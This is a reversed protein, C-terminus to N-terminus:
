RRRYLLKNYLQSVMMKSRNSLILMGYPIIIGVFAYLPWFGELETPIPWERLLSSSLNYLSVLLATLMKFALFHFTMIQLTEKGLGDLVVGVKTRTLQESIMMTLYIGCFSTIFYIYYPGYNNGGVATQIYLTLFSLVPFCLFFAFVKNYKIDLIKIQKNGVLYGLYFFPLIMLERNILIDIGLEISILGICFLTFVLIPKLYKIFFLSDIWVIFSFIVIEWFLSILFWYAGLFREGQYMGMISRKINIWMEQQSLTTENFGIEYFFNHLLIFVISWKIYTWFLGRFKRVMFNRGNKVIKKDQFFFGSLFYFLVMHFNYIFDHFYQPCGSHGIVMLSIGWGKAISIQANHNM